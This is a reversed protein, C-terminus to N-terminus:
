DREWRQRWNMLRWDNWCKNMGKAIADAKANLKAIDVETEQRFTEWKVTYTYEGKYYAWQHLALILCCTLITEAIVRKM